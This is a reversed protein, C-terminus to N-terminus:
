CVCIMVTKQCNPTISYGSIYKQNFVFKRVRSFLSNRSCLLYIRGNLVRKWKQQLYHHLTRISQCVTTSHDFHFICCTSRIGKFADENGEWKFHGQPRKGCRPTDQCSYLSVHAFQVLFQSTLCLHGRISDHERGTRSADKFHRFWRLQSCRQTKRETVDSVQIFILQYMLLTSNQSKVLHDPVGRIGKNEDEEM